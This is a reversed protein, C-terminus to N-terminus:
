NLIINVIQVVDLIDISNDSNIDASLSYDGNLIFSVALIVDQINVTSDGNIDGHVYDFCDINNTLYLSSSSPQGLISQCADEDDLLQHKIWNLAYEQVEGYPYAAFSHGDGAGEFLIKETTEPMNIYIDQGLM